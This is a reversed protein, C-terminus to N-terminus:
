TLEIQPTDEEDAQTHQIHTRTNKSILPILVETKQPKTPM